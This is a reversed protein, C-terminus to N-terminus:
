GRFLVALGVGIAFDSLGRLVGNHYTIDLGHAPPLLLALLGALGAAILAFGRWAPGGGALSLRSVRSLARIGRQRVLLRWELDAHGDHELCAGAVPQALIGQRQCGPSIPTSSPSIAAKRRWPGCSSWWRWCSLLMFLHLPYLRILRASLFSFYGPRAFLEKLRTWYAHTLIFGSLVFFFEM